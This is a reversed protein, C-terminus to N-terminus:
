YLDNFCFRIFVSYLRRSKMEFTEFGANGATGKRAAGRQCTLIRYFTLICLRIRFVKFIAAILTRGVTRKFLACQLVINFQLLLSILIKFELLFVPDFEIGFFYEAISALLHYVRLRGTLDHV